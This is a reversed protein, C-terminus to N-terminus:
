CPHVKRRDPNIADDAITVPHVKAPDLENRVHCRSVSRAACRPAHLNRAGVIRVSAGQSIGMGGGMVIGDMVAVITKPYTHIRYDLAYETRYFESAYPTGQKVSDHLARIDGGACFAKDGAGRVAIIRVRPDREWADLWRSLGAVMGLTLANLAAPRNLTVTAVGNRIEAVIEGGAASLQEEM